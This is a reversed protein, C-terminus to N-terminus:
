SSPKIGSLLILSTEEALSRGAARAQAAAVRRGPARRHLVTLQKTETAFVAKMGIAGRGLDFEV